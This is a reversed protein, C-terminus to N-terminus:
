LKVVTVGKGGDVQEAPEFSKVQPHLKLFEQVGRRLKGTGHGHIVWLPGNARAIAEEIVSEAESVRMGRLDVTNSELKMMPPELPAASEARSKAQSQFPKKEVKELAEAKEGRLSEIDSLDV